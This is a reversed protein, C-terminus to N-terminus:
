IRKPNKVLRCSQLDEVRQPVYDDWGESQDSEAVKEQCIHERADNRRQLLGHNNVAVERTGLIIPLMGGLDVEILLADGGM